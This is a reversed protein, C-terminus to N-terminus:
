SLNNKSPVRPNVPINIHRYISEKDPRDPPMKLRDESVMVLYRYSALEFGALSSEGYVAAQNFAETARQEMEGPIRVVKWETLVLAEAASEVQSIDRLPEGLILDTREGKAYAKFAWVGHLLLHAAGLKECATEGSKFAAEWRQKISEDAIISRQLHVFARETIRKSVAQIDSLQFTFESRFSALCPLVFKLGDVGDIENTQFYQEYNTLFREMSAVATPPLSSIYNSKFAMIDQFISRAHPLLERKVTGYPDSARAIWLQVFFRGAELLGEIRDSIAKWETRWSM